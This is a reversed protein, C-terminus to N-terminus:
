YNENFIVIYSIFTFLLALHVDIKSGVSIITASPARTDLPMVDGSMDVVEPANTISVDGNTADQLISLLNTNMETTVETAKSRTLGSIEVNAGYKV